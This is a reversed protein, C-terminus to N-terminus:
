GRPIERVEMISTTGTMRATRGATVVVRSGPKFGYNDRLTELAASIEEEASSSELPVFVPEVGWFLAMRALVHKINTAGFLPQKPRYKSLLRATSGSQTGAIIAQSAIKDAAGCAAFCIADPVANRDSSKYPQPKDQLFMRQEAEVLIRSLVEVTRAPHKGVATEESLMVADTGDMVATCVDSVEARTPRVEEVMSQLLQTATIVPTGLFNATDIVLSQAGPVRELPLELGLDGRAVMMADTSQAIENICDLSGAREIKSIVPIDKGAERILGKLKQVDAASSVFSLAIYDVDNELAWSLDKIDKETLPDLDLKSEPVAIGSRSRLVGGAVIKCTVADDNVEEALLLIRGDALLAREGVKIVETPNFAEVYLTNEDGTEGGTALALKINADDALRIEGDKVPTIRVKPGCLDQFVAVVVNLEKAVDRVTHLTKTHTEHDGHSFNLRAINMGALILEKVTDRDSSAPGLTAVIKTRREPYRRTM